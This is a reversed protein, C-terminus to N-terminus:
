CETFGWRKFCSTSLRTSTSEHGWARAGGAVLNAEKVKIQQAAYFNKFREVSTRQLGKLVDLSASPPLDGTAALCRCAASVEIKARVVNEGKHRMLGKKAFIDLFKLLSSVSDRSNAFLCQFLIWTYTIAGRFSSGVVDYKNQIQERLDHTCSNYILMTAWTNSERDPSDRTTRRNITLQWYCVMEWTIEEWCTMMDVGDDNWADAINSLSRIDIGPVFTSVFFITKMDYMILRNNLMEIKAINM